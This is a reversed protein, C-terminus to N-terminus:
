KAKHDDIRNFKKMEEEKLSDVIKIYPKMSAYSKHGTWKMIVPMQVGLTLALVIFTRRGFHTSLLEHKPCTEEHRVNKKFYVVKTPEDIGALKGLEKLYDNMKQNSIVPLAKEALLNEYKKLLATSYDNLEIYLPDVTKQTIVSIREKQIDSKSLNFVDSHRLGTFCCFCLVDRVRELYRKEEPLKLNYLIMLEEWSLCTVNRYGGDSGKLKPKFKVHQDGKYYGEDYAWSLFCRLYSLIKAITTNCLEKNFLDNLFGILADKTIKEFTLKNNYEFLHNKVTIHRNKHSQSWSDTLSKESIFSDYVDFLREGKGKKQYWGADRGLFTNHAAKIESETPARHEMHEFTAFYDEAWEENKM